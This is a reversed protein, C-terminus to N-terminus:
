DLQAATSVMQQCAELDAVSLYLRDFPRGGSVAITLVSGRGSFNWYHREQEPHFTGVLKGFADLGPGRWGTPVWHPRHEIQVDTICSLPVTIRKRLGWVRDMGRPIVILADDVIKLTNRATM